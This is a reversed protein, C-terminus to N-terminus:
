ENQRNGNINNMGDDNGRTDNHYSRRGRNYGDYHGRRNHSRGNGNNGYFVPEEKIGSGEEFSPNVRDEHLSLVKQKMDNYTFDTTARCLKIEDDRLNASHLFRYALGGDALTMDHKKIKSNLSEFKIVFEQMKMDSPRIFTEFSRYALYAAQNEDIKFVADLKRIMQSLGNDAKIEELDMDQIVEKAKGALSMWLAPGQKRKPLNTLSAWVEVEKKYEKWSFRKEDYNPSRLIKENNSM